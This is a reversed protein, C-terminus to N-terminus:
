RVGLYSVHQEIKGTRAVRLGEEFAQELLDPGTDRGGLGYIYNIVPPREPVEYLASRLEMFTPSGFAGFSAVRDCVVVCKTKGLADAVEAHPFPRFNRLKMLGVSKGQDRLVDVVYRATGATSGLAVMIVDADDARYTEVPGYHRGSLKEYETAAAALAAPAHEMGEIEQRKHEFYYDHFDLPGVTFPKEDLLMAYAPKYPGVYDKVADDPLTEVVEMTHSIIFGDYMIMAPLLVDHNEAAKIGILWLDYAEQSNEAYMQIWGADRAGMSDSHDCHINIPGSLARNVVAMTIPLRLSAAIYLVEWMLAFGNASTATMTRAGAAAAGICASMASHESEVTILATDVDGDHVYQAFTQMLETQPTIPYAAVVDPNVQKMAYAGADNGTLPMKIQSVSTKVM